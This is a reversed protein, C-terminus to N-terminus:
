IKMKEGKERTQKPFLQMHYSAKGSLQPSNHAAPSSSPQSAGPGPQHGPQSPQAPGGQETELHATPM